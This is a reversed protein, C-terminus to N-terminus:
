TASRGRLLQKTITAVREGYLEATEIDGVGPANPPNVQFSSAMPGVFSGVRNHATSSPGELSNLSEPENAAPFMATGVYIMGHQLANITLAVLTNLKDGSFSSANTFAGAVKDKWAMSFWKAAAIEQFKKMEASVNGMYTPCGFIIGDANDLEDIREAAESVNMLLVSDAVEEAGRAVAEAQLKTHGFGSHYVVAITTM